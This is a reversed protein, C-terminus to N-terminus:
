EKNALILDLELSDTNGLEITTAENLATQWNTITEEVLDNKVMFDRYTMENNGSFYMVHYGYDTQIMGTDGVMRSAEYCWDEFPQVMQGPYVGECLGGNEQSALDTTKETALAAFSAETRDGSLWQELIAEAQERAANKESDSYTTFGYDDTTGGEYSVLIHRVDKLSFQNDNVSHFRVVYYGELTEVETGDGFSTVYYPLAAVDGAMRDGRIWEQVAANVNNYRVDKNETVYLSDMQEKATEAAVKLAAEAAAIEADTYTINGNADETGVGKYIDVDLFYSDYSYSNYEYRKDAEYERLAADTVDAEIQASYATYYSNALATVEFYAKFSDLSAEDGYLAKLYANASRYGYNEAVTELQKFTEEISEQEEATLTYGAAKAANYLAYNNKASYLAMEVFFDAWTQNTAEDYYQENLPASTDLFYYLYDSYQNCYNNIADIYFYSLEAGSLKGDDNADDKAGDTFKDVISNGKSSDKDKKKSKGSGDTCASFLCLVMTLATFLSVIRKMLTLVKRLSLKSLNQSKAIISNYLPHDWKEVSSVWNVM